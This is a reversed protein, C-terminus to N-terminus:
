VESERLGALVAAAATQGSRICAPIGVGEYAAGCVALGPVEAVSSRIRRVRDPHGVAYQPLAGGWRTVRTAVPAATLGTLAAIDAAAIAALETDDRHLLQEEGYRGISARVVTAGSLHAWKQSSFTLAKVSRGETAPVLLGSGAPLSAGPPYVLTVIALSAYAIAALETAAWPAVERLLPAAKAAPVAVVVGDAPLETPAPVPGAVLSFGGPTRRLERVPLGLRLAAGSAALVAEPLLGMGSRLTGFVAGPASQSATALAGGAARVLSPDTALRDAIVPMTARLSLQDARGAYVGGLLPDVLGDAIASGLRDRVLAGVSVDETVPAGGRSPEAAVADAVADGFTGRIPEPDSPVGLLTGGPLPRLAGRVVLSASSTAPTTLQGGLGVAEALAKGEPARLVFAEAGEDVAVGGVHSTRLKGGIQKAGEVVTVDIGAVGLAHAAALGAIGAGIVVVHM